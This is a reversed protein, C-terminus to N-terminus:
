EEKHLVEPAFSEIALRTIQEIVPGGAKTEGDELTFASIILPGTPLYVIGVDAKIRRSSGKKSAVHPIVDPKLVAKIMGSSPRMLDIMTATSEPAALEGRHLRELLIGMDRPGAVLNALSDSYALGDDGYEGKKCKELQREDRKRSIPENGMEVMLYHWQGIEMPVRTNVLGQKDLMTNIADLGVARVITDTAMNDSVGIMIRCHDRLTLEPADHLWSLHGTGHTSIDPAVRHRDDLSIRGAEALQYLTVMVSVKFVSATPFRDDAHYEYEAGSDLDKVFFGARGAFDDAHRDM